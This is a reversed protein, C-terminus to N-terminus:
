PQKKIINTIDTAAHTGMYFMALQKITETTEPTLKFGFFFSLIDSVLFMVSATVYVVMKKSIQTKEENM